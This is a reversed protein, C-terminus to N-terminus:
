KRDLLGKGPHLIAVGNVRWFIAAFKHLPRGMRVMQSVDGILEAAVPRQM